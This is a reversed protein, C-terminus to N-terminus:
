AYHGSIRPGSRVGHRVGKTTLNIGVFDVPTSIVRLDQDNFIPADKGAATLYEDIYKRELMVTLYAANIERTAREAAKIHEPTEIVPVAIGVNDAPGCKTGSKGM